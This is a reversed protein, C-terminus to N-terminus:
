EVVEALQELPNIERVFARWVFVIRRHYVGGRIQLRLLKDGAPPYATKRYPTHARRGKQINLGGIYYDERFEYWKM